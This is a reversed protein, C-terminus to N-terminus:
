VVARDVAEQEATGVQHVADVNGVQGTEAETESSELMGAEEAGGVQQDSSGKEEEGGIKLLGGNQPFDNHEM